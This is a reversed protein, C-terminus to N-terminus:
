LRDLGQESVIPCAAQSVDMTGFYPLVDKSLKKQDEYQNRADLDGVSVQSAQHEIFRRAAAAFTHPHKIQDLRDALRVSDYLNKAFEVALAKDETKTSKRIYAGDVFYRVQWFPSAAIRYLQLTEPYRPIPQVEYPTTRSKV